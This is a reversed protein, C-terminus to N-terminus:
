DSRNRYHTELFQRRYWRSSREQTRCSCDPDLRVCGGVPLRRARVVQNPCLLVFQISVPSVARRIPKTSDLIFGAPKEGTEWQTATNRVAGPCAPRHKILLAIQKPIRSTEVGCVSSPASFVEGAKGATLRPASRTWRAAAPRAGSTRGGRIRARAATIKSGTEPLIKHSRFASSCRGIALMVLTM